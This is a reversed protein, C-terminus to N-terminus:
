RRLGGKAPLLREWFNSSREELSRALSDTKMEDLDRRLLRIQQQHGILRQEHEALKERLAALQERLEANAEQLAKMDSLVGLTLNEAPRAAPEGGEGAAPEMAGPEAKAGRLVGRITPVSTGMAELEAIQKLQDVTDPSYLRTRGQRSSTFFEGFGRLWRRVDAEPLGSREVLDRFKLFATEEDM